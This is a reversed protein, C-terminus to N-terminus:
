IQEAKRCAKRLNYAKIVLCRWGSPLLLELGRSECWGSPYVNPCDAYGYFSRSSVNPLPDTSV